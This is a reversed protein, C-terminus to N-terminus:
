VPRRSYPRGEAAARLKDMAHKATAKVTGLKIGLRDVMETQKYGALRLDLVEAERVTLGARDRLMELELRADAAFAIAGAGTDATRAPDRDEQLRATTGTQELVHALTNLLDKATTTTTVESAALFAAAPLEDLLREFPPVEPDSLATKLRRNRALSLNTAAFASVQILREVVLDDGAPVQAARASALPQREYEALLADWAADIQVDPPAGAAEAEEGAQNPLVFLRHLAVFTIMADMFYIFQYSGRAAVAARVQEIGSCGPFLLPDYGFRRILYRRFTRRQQAAAARAVTILTIKQYGTLAARQLGRLADTFERYGPMLAQIKDRAEFSRVGIAPPRPM